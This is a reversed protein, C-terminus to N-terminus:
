LMALFDRLLDSVIEPRELTPLHGCGPIIRLEAPSIGAAMEEAVKGPTVVDQGGVMILTPCTIEPLMPRMDARAIIAQQQRAFTQLGTARAMCRITEPLEDEALRDPHVLLPLLDETVADLGNTSAKDVLARRQDKQVDRDARASTSMLVLGEVREPAQRVVEFAVYGGMSLGGLVFTDPANSLLRAAIEEMSDDRTHDAVLIEACDGLAAIQPAFLDETCLLGPVLVM